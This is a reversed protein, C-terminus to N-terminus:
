GAEQPSVVPRDSSYPLPSDWGWYNSAIPNGPSDAAGGTPALLGHKGALYMAVLALGALVVWSSSGRAM